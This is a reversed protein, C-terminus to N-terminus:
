SKIQEIWRMTNETVPVGMLMHGGIYAAVILVMICVTLVIGQQLANPKM